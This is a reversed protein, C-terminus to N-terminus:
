SVTQNPMERLAALVGTTGIAANSEVLRALGLAALHFADGATVPVTFSAGPASITVMIANGTRRMSLSKNKATGHHHFDACITRGLFVNVAEPLERVTLQVAVKVAWDTPAGRKKPAAEFTLTQYNGKTLTAEVCLTASSAFRIGTVSNTNSHTLDNPL